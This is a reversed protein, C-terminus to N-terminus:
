ASSLHSIASSISQNKWCASQSWTPEIGTKVPTTPKRILQVPRIMSNEGTRNWPTVTGPM